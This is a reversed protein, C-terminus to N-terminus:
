PCGAGGAWSSLGNGWPTVSILIGSILVCCIDPILTWDSSMPLTKIRPCLNCMQPCLLIREIGQFSLLATLSLNFNTALCKCPSLTVSRQLSNPMELFVPCLIMLRNLSSPGLPKFSLLLTGCYEGFLVGFPTTSKIMLALFRKGVQPGLFSLAIMM